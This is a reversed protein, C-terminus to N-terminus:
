FLRFVLNVRSTAWSATRSVARRPSGSDARPAVEPHNKGRAILRLFLEGYRPMTDYTLSLQPRARCAPAALAADPM